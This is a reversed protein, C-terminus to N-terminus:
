LAMSHSSPRKSPPLSPPKYAAPIYLVKEEKLKRLRGLVCDEPTPFSIEPFAGAAWTKWKQSIDKGQHHELFLQEVKEVKLLQEKKETVPLDGEM